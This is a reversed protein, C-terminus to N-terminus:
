SYKKISKKLDKVEQKMCEVAISGWYQPVKLRNQVSELRDKMELVFKEKPSLEKM